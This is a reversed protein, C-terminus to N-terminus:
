KLRPMKMLGFGLHHFWSLDDFYLTKKEWKLCLIFKKICIQSQYSPKIKGDKPDFRLPFFADEPNYAIDPIAFDSISVLRSEENQALTESSLSSLNGQKSACSTLSLIAAIMLGKILSMRSTGKLPTLDELIGIRGRMKLSM